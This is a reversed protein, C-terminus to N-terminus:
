CEGQLVLGGVFGLGRLHSKLVTKGLAKTLMDAHMDMTKCYELRIFGQEVYQRILHYKTELHRVARIDTTNEVLKICAQNDEYITIPATYKVNMECLLNSLWKVTQATKGVSIYEAEATSQAIVAQKKSSWSVPTGNFLIM